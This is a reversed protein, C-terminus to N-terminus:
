AQVGEIKREVTVKYASQGRVKRKKLRGEVFALKMAATAMESARRRTDTHLAYLAYLMLYRGDRDMPELSKVMQKWYISKYGLCIREQGGGHKVLLTISYPDSVLMLWHSRYDTKDLVRGHESFIVTDDEDAKPERWPDAGYNENM